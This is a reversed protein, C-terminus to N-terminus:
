RLVLFDFPQDGAKRCLSEAAYCDLLEFEQQPRSQAVRGVFQNSKQELLGGGPNILAILGFRAFRPFATKRKLDGTEKTGKGQPPVIIIVRVAFLAMMWGIRCQTQFAGAGRSQCPENAHFAGIFVTELLGLCVEFFSACDFYLRPLDLSDDLLDTRRSGRPCFAILFGFGAIRGDHIHAGVAGSHGHAFGFQGSSFALLGIACGFGLLGVQAANEGLM